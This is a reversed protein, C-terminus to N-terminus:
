LAEEVVHGPWVKNELIVDLQEQALNLHDQAR